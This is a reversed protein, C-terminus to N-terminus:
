WSSWVNILVPRGQFDGLAISEGDITTGSLAPAPPRGATTVTTQPTEVTPAAADQSGGCGSAIVAVLM